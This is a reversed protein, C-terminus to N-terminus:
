SFVLIREQSYSSSKAAVEGGRPLARCNKVMFFINEPMLFRIDMLPSLFCLFLVSLLLPPSDGARVDVGIASGSSGGWARSLLYSQPRASPPPPPPPLGAPTECPM